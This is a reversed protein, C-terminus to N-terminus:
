ILKLAEEIARQLSLYYTESMGSYGYPQLPQDIWTPRIEWMYPHTPYFKNWTINIQINHKERFWDIVQQYLPASIGKHIQSKQKIITFSYRKSTYLGTKRNVNSWIALCEEDFDKKKLAKAINFPVFLEKM